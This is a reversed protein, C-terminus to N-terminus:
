DIIIIIIISIIIINTITIMVVTTITITITITIIITITITMIIGAQPFASNHNDGKNLHELEINQHFKPSNGTFKWLSESSFGAFRALCSVWLLVYSLRGM